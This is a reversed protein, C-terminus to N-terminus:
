LRAMTGLIWEEYDDDLYQSGAFLSEIGMTFLEWATQDAGGSGYVKGAYPSAFEDPYSVESDTFATNGTIDKLRQLKERQRRGIEGKATRQYHYMWEALLLGDIQQEMHHGVEHLTVAGYLGAYGSSGSKVGLNVRANTHDYDGRGSFQGVTLPQTKALWDAPYHKSAFQRYHEIDDATLDRLEGVTVKLADPSGMTRIAALAELRSEARAQAEIQKQEKVIDFYRRTTDALEQGKLTSREQRIRDRDSSVKQYRRDAKLKAQTRQEAEGRVERGIAKLVALDRTAKRGPGGDIPDADVVTADVPALEMQGDLAAQLGGHLQYQRTAVRGVGEPGIQAALAQVRAVYPQSSDVDPVAVEPDTDPLGAARKAQAQAIAASLTQSARQAIASSDVARRAASTARQIRRQPDTDEIQEFEAATDAAADLSHALYDRTFEVALKDAADSPKTPDNPDLGDFVRALGEPVSAGAVQPRLIPGLEVGAARVDAARARLKAELSEGPQLADAVAQVQGGAESRAFSIYPRVPSRAESAQTVVRSAAVAAATAKTPGGKRRLEGTKGSVGDNSTRVAVLGGSPLRVLAYDQPGENGYRYTSEVWGSLWRGSLEGDAKEITAYAQVRDGPSVVTMKARGIYNDTGKALDSDKFITELRPQTYSPGNMRMLDEAHLLRGDPTRVAAGKPTLTVEGAVLQRRPSGSDGYDGAVVQVPTGEPLHMMSFGAVSGLSLTQEREFDPLRKVLLQDDLNVQHVTDSAAVPVVRVDGTNGMISLERMGTDPQDEISLINGILTNDGSGIAVLDGANV